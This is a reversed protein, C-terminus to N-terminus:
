TPLTVMDKYVGPTVGFYRKFVLCFYSDNEYGSQKAVQNVKFAPNRLLEAAQRMRVDLISDQITQGTKNKFLRRLHSPTIYVQSAISEASIDDTFGELIINKVQLVISESHDCRRKFYQITIFCLFNIMWTKIDPLTELTMLRQYPMVKEGMLSNLNEGMENLTLIVSAVVEFYSSQVYDIDLNPILSLALIHDEVLKRICETDGARMVKIIESVSIRPPNDSLNSDSKVEEDFWIFRNLGLYFKQELAMYAQGYLKDLAGVTHTPISIGICVNLSLEENITKIITNAAEEMHSFVFEEDVIVPFSFLIAYEGDRIPVPQLADFKRSVAQLIDLARLKTFRVQSGVSSVKFVDTDPGLEIVMISQIGEELPLELEQAAILFHNKDFEEIGLMQDRLFREREIPLLENLRTRMRDQECLIAKKKDMKRVSENIAKVLEQHNLPKVIYAAVGAIVASRAAAFDEYGSIIIIVIAPYRERLINALAIGDMVPMRVDTIVIDPFLQECLHLAEEGNWAKGVCCIGLEDWEQLGALGEREIDDDDVILLRYM